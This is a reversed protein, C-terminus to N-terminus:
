TKSFNKSFEKYLLDGFGTGKGTAMVRALEEDLMSRYMEEAYGGNFLEGQPIATRMQSLMKQLVIAEFERAATRLRGEKSLDASNAALKFPAATSTDITKV